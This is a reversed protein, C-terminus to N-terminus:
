LIPNIGCRLLKKDRYSQLRAIVMDVQLLMIDMRIVIMITLGIDNEKM